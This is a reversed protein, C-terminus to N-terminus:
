QFGHTRTKQIGVTHQQEDCSCRSCLTKGKILFKEKVWKVRFIKYLLCLPVKCM